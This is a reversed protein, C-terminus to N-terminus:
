VLQLTTVCTADEDGTGIVVSGTGTETTMTVDYTGGRPLWLGIFGNDFSTVTEQMIVEGTTQDTVTVAVEANGLEGVCTTLSHYYCDHTQTAFPAVSVYFEDEPMPLTIQEEGPEGAAVTLQLETPTISAFLNGPREALPMTDLQEITERADLGDIGVAQLESVAQPSPGEGSDGGTSCGSVILALAGAIAVMGM